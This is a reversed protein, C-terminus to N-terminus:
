FVMEAMAKLQLYSSFNYDEVQMQSSSPSLSFDKM